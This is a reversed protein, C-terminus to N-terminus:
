PHAQLPVTLIPTLALCCHDSVTQSRALMLCVSASGAETTSCGLKREQWWYSRGRCGLLALTQNVVGLDLEMVLSRGFGFRWLVLAGYSGDDGKPLEGNPGKFSVYAAPSGEGQQVGAAKLLTSMRVGTWHSTSVACPGWNFGISKKHM